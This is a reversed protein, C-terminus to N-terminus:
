NGITTFNVAVYVFGWAISVIFGLLLTFIQSKSTFKYTQFYVTLPTFILTVIVTVLCLTLGLYPLNKSNFGILLSYAIMLGLM